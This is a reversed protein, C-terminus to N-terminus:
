ILNRVILFMRCYKLAKLRKYCFITHKATTMVMVISPLWITIVSVMYSATLFLQTLILKAPTNLGHKDIATKFVALEEASFSIFSNLSRQTIRWSKTREGTEVEEMQPFYTMLANRMREATRRSVNYKQEIDELSLGESTEQMWLALDFLDYMKEYNAM